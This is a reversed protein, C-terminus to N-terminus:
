KREHVSDNQSPLNLKLFWEKLADSNNIDGEFEISPIIPGNAGFIALPLIFVGLKSPLEFPSKSFTYSYVSDAYTTKGIHLNKPEHLVMNTFILCASACFHDTLVVLRPTSKRIDEVSRKDAAGLEFHQVLKVFPLGQKLADEMISAGSTDIGEQLRKIYFSSVRLLPKNESIQKPFLTMIAPTGYVAQLLSVQVGLHGGGNGRLDFVITNDSKASLDALSKLLKNFKELEDGEPDFGPMRVWSVTSSLQEISFSSPQIIGADWEATLHNGLPQWRLTFAAENNSSDRFICKEARKRYGIGDDILLKSAFRVRPYEVDYNANRYRLIDDNMIETTTRGDCSILESGLSPQNVPWNDMVKAVIYKQNHRELKVGTWTPFSSSIRWDISVHVDAFSAIFENELNMVDFVSNVYKLQNIVNKYHEDLLTKFQPNNPDVYGAHNQEVMLKIYDLDAKAIAPWPNSNKDCSLLCTLTAFIFFLKCRARM